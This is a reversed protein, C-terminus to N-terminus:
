SFAYILGMIWVGWVAMWARSHHRIAHREPLPGLPEVVYIRTVEDKHIHRGNVIKTHRTRTEHSTVAIPMDKAYTPLLPLLPTKYILQTLYTHAQTLERILVQERLFERTAV